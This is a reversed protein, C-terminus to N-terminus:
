IHCQNQRNYYNAASTVRKYLETYVVTGQQCPSQAINSHHYGSDLNRISTLIHRYPLTRLSNELLPRPDGAQLANLPANIQGMREEPHAILYTILPTSLLVAVAFFLAIGRWRTRLRERDVLALYPLCLSFTLPLTRSGAYTHLCAALAMGGLAWAIWRRGFPKRGDDLGAVFLYGALAALPVLLIGRIARRSYFLPWLSVAQWALTWLAVPQGLLRRTLAYILALGAMSIGISLLRIEPYGSGVLWFYGAQLWHYLPEHGYNEPYYVRWYGDLIKEVLLVNKIDDHHLGPPVDALRYTRFWFAVLLLVVLLAWEYPKHQPSPIESM